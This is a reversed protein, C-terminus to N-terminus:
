LWPPHTLSSLYFHLTPALHDIYLCLLSQITTQPPKGTELKWNWNWFITAVGGGHGITHPMHDNQQQQQQQQQELM